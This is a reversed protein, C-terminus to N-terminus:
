PVVFAVVFVPLATPVAPLSVPFATLVPASLVASATFYVINDLIKQDQGSRYHSPYHGVINEM